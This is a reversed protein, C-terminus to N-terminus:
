YIYIISFHPISTTPEATFSLEEKDQERLNRPECGMLILLPQLSHPVLLNSLGIEM